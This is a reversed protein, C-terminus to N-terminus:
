QPLRYRNRPIAQILQDELLTKIAKEVQSEDPWLKKIANETLSENERLAQVITGRCKRDTGHWDQSKRLLDTKPYGNKRWNCQSIVPCLECKPHSSTCVLAGLEMTAAAWIHANNNPMLAQRSSKERATAAPKPHEEGDIVRTLLRRINVDMVLTAEEFAFAAIAAATYEGIGPLLQLTEANNPVENNFDQAIIAAAAHLRLARRPYGLRGWATIVQAPTAQALDSPTPWREMWEIWKPLVRNVPTQQLMFESVMVGWASTDRWPLDRKNRKFWNIIPKELSNM